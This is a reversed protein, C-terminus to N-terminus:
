RGGAAQLDAICFEDLEPVSGGFLNAFFDSTRVAFYMLCSEEDCHSGNEEDHHNEQMEVGSNVLGLIHGFEHKMVTEEIVSRSAQGLGDSTNQITEGFLAMSTNYHAIGLVNSESYEGDLVIFYAVLTGEESFEERHERELSRVESASYSEQGGASIETPSLITVSSKHLREELFQELNNLAEDTPRFGEMYQIEVVVDEFDEDRLFDAASAGPSREHNYSFTPDGGNDDSGNNDVSDTVTGDDCATFLVLLISIVVFLLERKM